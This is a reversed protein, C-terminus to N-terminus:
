YQNGPISLSGPSRGSYTTTATTTTTAEALPGTYSAEALLSWAHGRRRTARAVALLVSANQCSGPWTALRFRVRLM